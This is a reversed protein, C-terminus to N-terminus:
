SCLDFQNQMPVLEDSGFALVFTAPVRSNSPPGVARYKKLAGAGTPGGYFVTISPAPGWESIQITQQLPSLLWHQNILYPSGSPPSVTVRVLWRSFVNSANPTWTPECAATVPRGTITVSSQGLPTVCTGTASLSRWYYIKDPGGYFAPGRVSKFQGNALCQHDLIGASGTAPAALVAALVGVILFAGRRRIAKQRM